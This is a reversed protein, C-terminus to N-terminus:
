KQELPIGKRDVRVWLAHGAQGGANAQRDRPSAPADRGNEVRACVRKWVGPPHIWVDAPPALHVFECSFIIFHSLCSPTENSGLNVHHRHGNKWRDTNVPFGSHQRPTEDRVRCPCALNRALKSKLRGWSGRECCMCFGRTQRKRTLHIQNM